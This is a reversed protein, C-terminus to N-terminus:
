HDTLPLSSSLWTWFVCLEGFMMCSLCYGLIVRLNMWLSWKDGRAISFISLSVQKGLSFPIYRYKIMHRIQRKMTLIFLVIWYLLLIPWFVPVDFISFFTLVFAVCLAKTFAYRCLLLSVGLDLVLIHIKLCLSPLPVSWILCWCACVIPYLYIIINLTGWGSCSYLLFRVVELWVCTVVKM